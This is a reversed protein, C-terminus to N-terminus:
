INSQDMPVARSWLTQMTCLDEERTCVAYWEPLPAAPISSGTASHFLGGTSYPQSVACSIAVDTLCVFPEWHPESQFVCASFSSTLGEPTSRHGGYWCSLGAGAIFFTLFTVSRLSIRPSLIIICLSISLFACTIGPKTYTLHVVVQSAV